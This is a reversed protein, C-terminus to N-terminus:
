ARPWHQVYALPSRLRAPTSSRTLLRQLSCAAVCVFPVTNAAHANSVRACLAGWTGRVSVIIRKARHCVFVFHAPVLDEVEWRSVFLDSPKVSTQSFLQEDSSLYSAHALGLM